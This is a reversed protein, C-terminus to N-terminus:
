FRPPQILFSQIDEHQRGRQLKKVREDVQERWTMWKCNSPKYDGSDLFRGLTLGEPREGMSKLFGEFTQWEDCVKVNAYTPHDGDGNDARRRMNMWTAYTPSPNGDSSRSHGHTPRFLTASARSRERRWCGCSLSGGSRLNLGSVIREVGCRCRCRWRAVRRVQGWNENM